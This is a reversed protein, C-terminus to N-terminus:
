HGGYHAREESHGKGVPNTSLEDPRLVRGGELKRLRGAGYSSPGKAM